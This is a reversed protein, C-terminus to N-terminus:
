QDSRKKGHAEVLVESDKKVCHLLSGDKIMWLHVKNNSCMNGALDLGYFKPLANVVLFVQQHQHGHPPYRGGDWPIIQDPLWKLKQIKMIIM